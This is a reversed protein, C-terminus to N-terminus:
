AWISSHWNGKPTNKMFLIIVILMIFSLIIDDWNGLALFLERSTIALVPLLILQGTATAATLIGVALGRRKEFWRNAVYTSLVTLFVGSGLGIIIGLNTNTAM